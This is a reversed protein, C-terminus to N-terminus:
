EPANLVKGDWDWRPIDVVVEAVTNGGYPRPVYLADDRWGDEGTGWKLGHGYQTLPPDWILTVEGDPSVRYLRSNSYETVYINGCVDVALGDMYSNGMGTAFLSADGTPELDDDLGVTYLRGGSLVGAYLTSYDKSFALIRPGGQIGGIPLRTKEGTDPDVKYINNNNAVWIMGNPDVNVEYAYLDTALTETGGEPSIRTLSGQQRAVVLDGDHLWDMQEMMGLGPVWIEFSGAGDARVLSSNDSGLIWGESDFDVDHYGRAGVVENVEVVLEPLEECDVVRDGTDEGSDPPDETDEQDDTDPPETDDTDDPDPADSDGPSETDVTGSDHTAPPEASDGDIVVPVPTCALLLLTTTM